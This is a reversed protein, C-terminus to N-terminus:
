KKKNLLRMNDKAEQILIKEPNNNDDEFRNHGTTLRDILKDKDFYYRGEFTTETKTLDQQEKKHDYVFASFKEYVFILQGNRFYFETIENGNSLGIWQYIKKIQEGKFYGTLEGGGDTMNGLFDDNELTVKKYATDSNISQIEKKIENKLDSRTQGCSTSFFALVALISLIDYRFAVM